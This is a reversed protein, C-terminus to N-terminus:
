ALGPKTGAFSGAGGTLALYTSGDYTAADNVGDAMAIKETGAWNYVTFTYREASSRASTISTWGSYSSGDGGTSHM